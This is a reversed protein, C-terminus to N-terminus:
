AGLPLQPTHSGVNAGVPIRGSALKIPSPPTTGNLKNLKGELLNARGVTEIDFRDSGRTRSHPRWSAIAGTPGEPWKEGM